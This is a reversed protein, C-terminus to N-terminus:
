NGIKRRQATLPAVACQETEAISCIAPCDAVFRKDFIAGILKEQALIM